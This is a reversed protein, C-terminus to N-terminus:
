ASIWQAMLTSAGASSQVTVINGANNHQFRATLVDGVSCQVIVQPTGLTIQDSAVGQPRYSTSASIATGGKLLWVQRYTNATVTGPETWVCTAQVLYYGATQVTFQNAAGSSWMADTNVDAAGFSLQLSTGSAATQTATARAFVLPPKGVQLLDSGLTNMDSATATSGAVFTPPATWTYAM